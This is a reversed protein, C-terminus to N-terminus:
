TPVVTLVALAEGLAQAKSERDETHVQFVQYGHVHRQRVPSVFLFRADVQSLGLLKIGDKLLQRQDLGCRGVDIGVCVQEVQERHTSFTSKFIHRCLFDPGPDAATSKNNMMFHMFRWGSLLSTPPLVKLLVFM